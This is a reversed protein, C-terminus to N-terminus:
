ICYWQTVVRVYSFVATVFDGSDILLYMYVLGFPPQEKYLLIKLKNYAESLKLEEEIKM